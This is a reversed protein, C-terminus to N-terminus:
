KKSSLNGSKDQVNIEGSSVIKLTTLDKLEYTKSEGPVDCKLEGDIIVFGNLRSSSYYVQQGNKDFTRLAYNGKGVKIKLEM